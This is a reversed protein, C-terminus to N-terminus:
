GEASLSQGHTHTHTHTHHRKQKLFSFFVPKPLKKLKQKNESYM